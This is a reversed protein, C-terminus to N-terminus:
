YKLVQNQGIRSNRQLGNMKCLDDPNIGIEAAIKDITDGRRATYYRGTPKPGRAANAMEEPAESEGGVEAPASAMLRARRMNDDSRFMFYDGTVDQAAFNFLLAPNIAVGLFRTEFHLHSGFSRGTNGGLGILQGSKVVQGETVHQRSLHAYITELGNKHRIVVFYGYGAGEYDVVRVKGDFAARITDGTYVKVDIGKHMRRFTPRYGFNSTVVRSTTPMTFGRLDIRYSEPLEVHNYCHVKDTNWSPYLANREYNTLENRLVVKNIMVSDVAKMRRDIPAQRAILDQAMALSSLCCAAVLTLIRTLSLIHM